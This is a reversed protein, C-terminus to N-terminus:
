NKLNKEAVKGAAQIKKEAKETKEKEAKEKEKEIWKKILRGIARFIAVLFIALIISIWIAKPNNVVDSIRDLAKKIIGNIGIISTIAFAGVIAFLKKEFMAGLPGLLFLFIMLWILCALFFAWSLSYEVGLIIKYLPNFKGFFNSISLLIKGSNTKELIKTWEKKLYESRVEENEAFEGINGAKETIKELSNELATSSTVSFVIILFLVLVGFKKNM